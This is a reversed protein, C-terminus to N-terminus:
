SGSPKYLHCFCVSLPIKLFSKEFFKVPYDIQLTPFYNIEPVGKKVFCRDNIIRFYKKMMSNEKIVLM